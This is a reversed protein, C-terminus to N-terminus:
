SQPSPLLPFQAVRVGSEDYLFLVVDSYGLGQDPRIVIGGEETKSEGPALRLESGLSLLNSDIQAGFDMRKVRETLANTARLPFVGRHAIDGTPTEAHVFYRLDLPDAGTNSATFDFVWSRMGGDLTEVEGRDLTVDVSVPPAPPAPPASEACALMVALVAVVPFAARM